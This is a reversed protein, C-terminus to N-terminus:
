LSFLMGLEVYLLEEFNCFVRWFVGKFSVFGSGVDVWLSETQRGFECFVQQVEFVSFRNKFCAFKM